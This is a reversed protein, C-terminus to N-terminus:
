EDLVAKKAREYEDADIAGRDRLAALRELQAVVGDETPPAAVASRTRAGDPPPAPPTPRSKRDLELSAGLPTGVLLGSSPPKLPDPDRPWWTDRLTKPSFLWLM